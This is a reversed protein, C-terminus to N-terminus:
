NAPELDCDRNDSELGNDGSSSGGSGHTTSLDATEITTDAAPCYIAISSGGAGDGGSGGTQGDSGDGGDKGAGRDPFENDLEAHATTPQGGSGGSGGSSGVGGSGGQGGDGGDAASVDVSRLTLGSSNQAVIGISWGGATGGEGGTGGCGGAGGGGGGGALFCIMGTQDWETYGSAGGGGGRGDAGDHGAGGHGHVQWNLGDVTIELTGDTGAAAPGDHALGDRGRQDDYPTYAGGEFLRGGCANNSDYLANNTPGYPNECQGAASNGGPRHRTEEPSAGEENDDGRGGHGGNAGSCAPNVGGDAEPPIPEAVNTYEDDFLDLCNGNHEHPSQYWDGDHGDEGDGGPTTAAEGSQGDEGDGGRGASLTVDKLHLGGADVAYLAVTSVSEHDDVDDTEVQLHRVETYPAIDVARLGVLLEGEIQDSGVSVTPMRDTNLHWYPQHDFGGLVSVGPQLDITEDFVSNGGVIVAVSNRQQASELGDNLSAFPRHRSGDQDSGTFTSDVYIFTSGSQTSDCEAFEPDVNEIEIDNCHFDGGACTKTGLNCLGCEYVHSTLEENHYYIGDGTSEPAPACFAEPCVDASDACYRIDEDSCEGGLCETCPAGGISIPEYECYGSDCDVVTECPRTPCDDLFTADNCEEGHPDQNPDDNPDQNPDDNPDQNPDDNPDQNPDDNPDQNPDQNPDGETTNIECDVNEAAVGADGRSDGAIGYFLALSDDAEITTDQQPCYIAISSGGAGDGGDGGSQGDSGDGGDRGDGEGPWGSDQDAAAEGGQGGKGGQGGPGGQGGQGGDGADASHIEVRRLTLDTSNIAILGM